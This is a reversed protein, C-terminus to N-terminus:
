RLRLSGSALGAVIATSWTCYVPFAFRAAELLLLRYFVSYMLMDGTAIILPLSALM